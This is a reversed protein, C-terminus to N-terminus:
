NTLKIDFFNKMKILYDLVEQSDLIDKEIFTITHFTEIALTYFNYIQIIIKNPFKPLLLFHSGDSNTFIYKKLNFFVDSRSKLEIQELILLFDNGTILSLLEIPYASNHGTEFYICNNIKFLNPVIFNSEYDETVYFHFFFRNLLARTEILTEISDSNLGEFISYLITNFGSLHPIEQRKFDFHNKLTLYLVTELMNQCKYIPIFISHYIICSSFNTLNIATGCLKM